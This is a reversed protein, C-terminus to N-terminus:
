QQPPKKLRSNLSVIILLFRSTCPSYVSMVYLAWRVILTPCPHHFGVDKWMLRAKVNVVQLFGFRNM